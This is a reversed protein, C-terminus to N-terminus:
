FGNKPETMKGARFQSPMLYGSRTNVQYQRPQIFTMDKYIHPNLLILSM